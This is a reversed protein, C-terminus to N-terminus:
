RVPDPKWTYIKAVADSWLFPWNRHFQDPGNIQWQSWGLGLRECTQLIFEDSGYSVSRENDGPQLGLKEGSYGAPFNNESPWGPYAAHLARLNEAAPFLNVDAHYLHYAVSTKSWDLPGSKTEFARVLNPMATLTGWGSIGAPTLIMLHTDRALHRAVAHVRVLADLTRTADPDLVGDRGPGTLPENALEYLVHTRRAFAPAVARWLGTNLPEDYKPATGPVRNHANIIAYLGNASCHNVARELRSLQARRYDADNWDYRNYGEEHIWVDFLILRVANLGAKRLDAYYSAPPETPEGSWLWATGARLPTNADTRLVKLRPGSANVADPIAVVRVRARDTPRPSSVTQAGATSVLALGFIFILALPLRM